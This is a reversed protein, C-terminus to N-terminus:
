ICTKVLFVLGTILGSAILLNIFHFGIFKLMNKWETLKSSFTYVCGYSLSPNGEDDTFTIIDPQIVDSYDFFANLFNYSPAFEKLVQEFRSAEDTQAWLDILTIQTYFCSKSNDVKLGNNVFDRTPLTSESELINDWLRKLKIAYVTQKHWAVIKNFTNKLFTM